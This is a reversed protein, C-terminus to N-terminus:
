RYRDIIKTPTVGASMYVKPKSKYAEYDEMFATIRISYNGNDNSTYLVAEDDKNNDGLSIDDKLELLAKLKRM